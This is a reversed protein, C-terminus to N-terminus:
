GQQHPNFYDHASSCVFELHGLIDGGAGHCRDALAVVMKDTEDKEGTEKKESNYASYWMNLFIALTKHNNLFPAPLALIPGYLGYLRFNISYFFSRGPFRGSM